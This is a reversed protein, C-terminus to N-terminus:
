VGCAAAPRGQVVPLLCKAEELVGCEWEKYYGLGNDIEPASNRRFDRDMTDTPDFETPNEM